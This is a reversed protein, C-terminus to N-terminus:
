GGILDKAQALIFDIDETGRIRAAVAAPHMGTEKQIDAKRQCKECKCGRNHYDFLDGPHQGFHGTKDAVDLAKITARSLTRVAQMTPHEDNFMEQHDKHVAGNKWKALHDLAQKVGPEHQALMDQHRRLLNHAGSWNNGFGNNTYDHHIRSSARHLEGELHAAPGSAPIHKDHLEEGRAKLPDDDRLDETLGLFQDVKALLKDIRSETHGLKAHASARVRYNGM